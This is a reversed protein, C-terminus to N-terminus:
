GFSPRREHLRRRKAEVERKKRLLTEQETEINIVPLKHIVFRPPHSKDLPKKHKYFIVMDNIGPNHRKDVVPTVFYNSGYFMKKKEVVPKKGSALKSTHIAQNYTRILQDRSTIMEDQSEMLDEQAEIESQRKAHEEELELAKARWKEIEAQLARIREQHQYEIEQARTSLARKEQDFETQLETISRERQDVDMQAAGNRKEIETLQNAIRSEIESAEALARDRENQRRMLTKIRQQLKMELDKDEATMVFVDKEEKEQLERYSEIKQELNGIKVLTDTLLQKIKINEKSLEIEKACREDFDERLRRKVALSSARLEALRRKLMENELELDKHRQMEVDYKPRIDDLERRVNELKALLAAEQDHSGTIKEQFKAIKIQLEEYAKEKKATSIKRAEVEKTLEAKSSTLTECKKRSRVLEEDKETIEVTMRAKQKRLSELVSVESMLSKKETELNELESNRANLRITLKETTDEKEKVETRLRENEQTAKKIEDRNRRLEGQLSDKEKLLRAEEEKTKEGNSALNEMLNKNLVKLKEIETKKRSIELKRGENGDKLSRLSNQREAIITFVRRKEERLTEVERKTITMQSLKMELEAQEQQHSALSKSIMTLNKQLELNEAQLSDVEGDKRSLDALQQAYLNNVEDRKLIMEEMQLIRMLLEREQASTDPVNYLMDHLEHRARNLRHDKQLRARLSHIRSEAHQTHVNADHLPGDPFFKDFPIEEAIIDPSM